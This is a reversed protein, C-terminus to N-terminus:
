ILALSQEINEPRGEDISTMERQLINMLYKSSCIPLITQVISDTITLNKDGQDCWPIPLGLPSIPLDTSYFLSPM